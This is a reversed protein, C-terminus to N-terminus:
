VLVFSINPSPVALPANYSARYIRSIKYAVFPNGGIHFALFAGRLQGFFPFHYGIGMLSYDRLLFKINDLLKNCTTPKWLVLSSKYINKCANDLTHVASTSQPCHVYV